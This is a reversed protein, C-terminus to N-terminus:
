VPVELGRGLALAGALRLCDTDLREATPLVQSILFYKGLIQGDESATCCAWCGRPVWQLSRYPHPVRPPAWRRREVGMVPDSPFSLSVTWLVVLPLLPQLFPSRGLAEPAPCLSPLVDTCFQPTGLTGWGSLYPCWSSGSRTKRRQCGAIVTGVM